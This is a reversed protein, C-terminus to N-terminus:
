SVEENISDPRAPVEARRCCGGRDTALKTMIPREYGVTSSVLGAIRIRGDRAALRCKRSKKPANIIPLVTATSSPRTNTPMRPPIHVRPLSLQFAALLQGLLMGAHM